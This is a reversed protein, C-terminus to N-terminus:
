RELIARALARGSLFADEVRKGRCWDGCIGLQLAPDFLFDQGLPSLTQAYRWYHAKGPMHPLSHGIAEEFAVVMQNIVDEENDHVHRQSWDQTAHLTWTEAPLRGPKSNNRGIWSLPLNHVHAGDFELSLTRTPALLVAWCPAMRVSSIPAAVSPFKAVLKLAQPAPLALIVMNAMLQTHDEFTLWWRQDARELSLLRARFNVSMGEALSRCMANMGPQGVFRLQKSALQRRGHHLDVVSGGWAACHGGLEWQAVQKAFTPHRVTFYQAGYDFSAEESRKTAMRGGTGRSKEFVEVHIGAQALQSACTLGAIGAGIIAVDCKVVTM